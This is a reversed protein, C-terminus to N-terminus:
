PMASVVVTAAHAAAFEKEGSAEHEGSWEMSEQALREVRM